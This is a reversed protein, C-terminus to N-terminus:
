RGSNRWGHRRCAALRVLCDPPCKYVVRHQLLLDKPRPTPLPEKMDQQVYGDADAIGFPLDMPTAFRAQMDCINVILSRFDTVKLTSPKVTELFLLTQYALQVDEQNRQKVSTSPELKPLNIEM